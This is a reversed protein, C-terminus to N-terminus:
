PVLRGRSDFSEEFPADSELCNQLSDGIDRSLNYDAEYPLLNNTGGFLLIKLDQQYLAADIRGHIRYFGELSPDPTISAVTAGRTGFGHFCLREGKAAIQIYRSGGGYYTGVQLPLPTALAPLSISSVVVAVVTMFNTSIKLRTVGRSISLRSSLM